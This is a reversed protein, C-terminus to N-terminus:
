FFISGVPSSIGGALGPAPLMGHTPTMISVSSGLINIYQLQSAASSFPLTEGPNPKEIVQQPEIVNDAKFPYVRMRACICMQLPLPIISSFFTEVSM